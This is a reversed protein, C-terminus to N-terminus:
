ESKKPILKNKLDNLFGKTAEEVKETVKKKLITKLSSTIIEGFIVKGIEGPTLGTGKGVNQLVIDPIVVTELKQSTKMVHVTVGTIALKGFAIRAPEGEPVAESDPQQEAAKKDANASNKEMNDMLEQLNSGGDDQLELWLVPNNINLEDIVLPQKGLSGLNIGLRIMDMQFANKSVYGSPNSITLGSIEGAGSTLKIEVASVRVPVGLLETGIGELAGKVIKDLNGLLLVVAVVVLVVVVALGIMLKKM